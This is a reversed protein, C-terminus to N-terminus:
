LDDPRLGTHKSIEALMVPGLEEKDHFAFRYQPWGERRLARRPGSTRVIRWGIRQLAALVRRAKAAPWQSM